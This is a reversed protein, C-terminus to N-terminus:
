FSIILWSILLLVTALITNTKAHFIYGSSGSGCIGILVGTTKEDPCVSPYRRRCESKCNDTTCSDLNFYPQTTPSCNKRVVPVCAHTEM